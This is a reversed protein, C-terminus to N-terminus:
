HGKKTKSPLMNMPGEPFWYWPNQSDTSPKLLTTLLQTIGTAILQPANKIEELIDPAQDVLMKGLKEVSGAASIVYPTIKEWLKSELAAKVAKSKIVGTEEILKDMQAAQTAMSQATSGVAMGAHAGSAMSQGFDPVQGVAGGPTSAPSGFALIRNLGAKKLDEAARQYATSSMREQFERNREAEEASQKASYASGALSAGGGIAAGAIQGLGAQLAATWSM